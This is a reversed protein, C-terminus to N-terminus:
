RTKHEAMGERAPPRARRVSAVGELANGEEVATAVDGGSWAGEGNRIAM